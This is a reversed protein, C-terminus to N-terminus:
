DDAPTAGTGLGPSAGPRVEFVAEEPEPHRRIDGAFYYKGDPNWYDLREFGERASEALPSDVSNRFLDDKTVRSQGVDTEWGEPPPLRVM